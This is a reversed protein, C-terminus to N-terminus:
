PKLETLEILCNMNSLVCYLGVMEFGEPTNYYDLGNPIANDDTDQACADDDLTSFWLPNYVYCCGLCGINIFLYLIYLVGFPIIQAHTLKKMVHSFYTAKYM